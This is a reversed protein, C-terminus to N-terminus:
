GSFKVGANIRFLSEPALAENLGFLDGNEWTLNLWEGCKKTGIIGSSDQCPNKNEPLQPRLSQPPADVTTCLHYDGTTLFNLYEKGFPCALQTGIKYNGYIIKADKSTPEHSDLSKGTVYPIVQGSCTHTGNFGGCREEATACSLL